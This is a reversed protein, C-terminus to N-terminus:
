CYFYISILIDIYKYMFLRLYIKSLLFDSNTLSYYINSSLKTYSKIALVRNLIYSIQM